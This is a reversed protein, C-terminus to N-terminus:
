FDFEQMIKNTIEEYAMEEAIDSLLRDYAESAKESGQDMAKKYWTLANVTDLKQEEYLVGMKYM